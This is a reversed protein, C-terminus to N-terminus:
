TEGRRIHVMSASDNSNGTGFIGGCQRGGASDYFDCIRRDANSANGDGAVAEDPIFASGNRVACQGASLIDMGFLLSPVDRVMETAMSRRTAAPDILDIDTKGAKPNYENRGEGEPQDTAWIIVCEKINCCPCSLRKM